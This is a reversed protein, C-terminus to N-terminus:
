PAPVTAGHPHYRPDTRLRRRGRRLRFPWQLTATRRPTSAYLLALYLVALPLAWIFRALTVGLANVEHSLQKQQANRLAQTFAALLTFPIWLM